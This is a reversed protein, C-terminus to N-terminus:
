IKTLIGLDLAQICKVNKSQWFAEEVLKELNKNGKIYITYYIFIDM